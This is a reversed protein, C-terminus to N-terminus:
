KFVFRIMSALRAARTRRVDCTLKVFQLSIIATAMAVCAVSSKVTSAGDVVTSRNSHFDYFISLFLLLAPLLGLVVQRKQPALAGIARRTADM